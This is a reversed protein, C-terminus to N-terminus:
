LYREKEGQEAKREQTVEEPRHKKWIQAGIEQVEAIHDNGALALELGGTLHEPSGDELFKGMEIIASEMKQIGIALVERSRLLLSRDEEDTVGPPVNMKELEVKGEQIKGWLWELYAKLEQPDGSESKFLEVLEILKLIHMAIPRNNLPMVSEGMRLDLTTKQETVGTYHPMLASCKVCHKADLVNPASCHLCPKTTPTVLAQQIVMFHEILLDSSSKVVTIGEELHAVDGDNFYSAMCRLGEGCAKYAEQLAPLKLSIEQNDLRQTKNITFDRYIREWFGMTWQLREQLAQPPFDGRIVGKAIRILEHFYPSPSYIEQKQEEIRLCEFGSFLRYATRKTLEVLDLLQEKDKTSLIEEFKLLGLSLLTLNDEIIADFEKIAPTNEQLLRISSFTETLQKALQQMAQLKERIEPLHAEPYNAEDYFRKTAKLLENLCPSDTPSFIKEEYHGSAGLPHEEV